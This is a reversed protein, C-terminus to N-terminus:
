DRSGWEQLHAPGDHKCVSSLSAEFATQLISQKREQLSSISLVFEMGSFYVLQEKTAEPPIGFAGM